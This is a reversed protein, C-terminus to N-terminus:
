EGNMIASNHHKLFQEEVINVNHPVFEFLSRTDNFAHHFDIGISKMALCVMCGTSLAILPPNMLIQPDRLKIMHNDADEVFKSRSLQNLAMLAAYEAMGVATEALMELQLTSEGIIRHRIKRITAFQELALMSNEAFAKTLYFNEAHKLQYNDLDHPYSALAADSVFRTEGNHLQFARFMQGVAVSASRELDTDDPNESCAVLQPTYESHSFSQWIAGFDIKSLTENLQQTINRISQM